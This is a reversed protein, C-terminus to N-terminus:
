PTWPDDPGAPASEDVGRESQVRQWLGELLEDVGTGNVSSVVFRRWAEPADVHPPDEGPPLLDAKTLVLCHPVSALVPSYRALETRLGDYEAQPDPADLPVM